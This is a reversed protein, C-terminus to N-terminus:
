SPWSRPPIRIRGAHTARVGVRDSSFYACYDVALTADERVIAFVRDGPIAWITGATVATSSVLPVGLVMRKTPMTPDATLLPENSGTAKKVKSLTLIDAPNAVFATIVAGEDEAKSLAEAFVDTNPIAGNTDM